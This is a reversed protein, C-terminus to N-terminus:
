SCAEELEDADHVQKMSSEWSSLLPILPLALFM